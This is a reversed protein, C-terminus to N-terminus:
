PVTWLSCSCIKACKQCGGGGRSCGHASMSGRGKVYALMKLNKGGKGKLISYRIKLYMFLSMLNLHKFTPFNVQYTQLLELFM